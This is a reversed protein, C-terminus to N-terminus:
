QALRCEGHAEAVVDDVEGVGLGPLLPEMGAKVLPHETRLFTGEQLLAAWPVDQAPGQPRGLLAGVLGQLPVVGLQDERRLAERDLQRFEPAGPGPAHGLALDLVPTSDEIQLDTDAPGGEVGHGPPTPRRARPEQPADVAGHGVGAGRDAPQGSGGDARRETEVRVADPDGAAWGHGQAPSAGEHGVHGQRVV